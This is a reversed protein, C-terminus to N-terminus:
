FKLNLHYLSDDNRQIEPKYSMAMMDILLDKTGYQIHVLKISISINFLM